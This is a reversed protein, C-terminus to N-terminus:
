PGVAKQANASAAPAVKRSAQVTFTEMGRPAVQSVPESLRAGAFLSGSSELARLIDAAKRAEGRMEVGATDLKIWYLFGDRPVAAQASRVAPLVSEWSAVRANIDNQILLALRNARSRAQEARAYEPQLAARREALADIGRQYRADSVKQAGLLVLLALAAAAAPFVWRSPARTPRGELPVILGAGVHEAIAAAAAYEGETVLRANEIGEVGPLRVRVAASDDTMPISAAIEEPEGFRLTHRVAMGGALEDIVEAREAHQLGLGLAAMPAGLVASVRGGRAREIQDMWPRVRSRRAVVLAGGRVADGESSAGAVPAAASGVVGVMADQSEIPVLQEISALVGERASPWGSAGFPVGRIACWSSPVTLVVRAGGPAPLAALERRAEDSPMSLFRRLVPGTFVKLGGPGGSVVATALDEGVIALSVTTFSTLRM